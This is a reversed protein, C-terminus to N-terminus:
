KRIRLGSDLNFEHVSGGVVKVTLRNDYLSVSQNVSSDLWTYFSMTRRVIKESKIIESVKYRSYLVGRNYFEIGVDDKISFSSLIREYILVVRLGGDAVFVSASFPMQSRWIELLGNPATVKYMIGIDTQINMNLRKPIMVFVCAGDSSVSAKPYPMLPLDAYINLSLLSLLICSVIIKLKM